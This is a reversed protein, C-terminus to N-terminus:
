ICPVWQRAGDVFYEYYGLPVRDVRPAHELAVSRVRTLANEVQDVDDLDVYVVPIKREAAWYRRKPCATKGTWIFIWSASPVLPQIRAWWRDLDTDENGVLVFVDSCYLYVDMKTNFRSHSPTDHVTLDPLLYHDVTITSVYSTSLIGSSWRQCLASKGVKRDGIVTVIHM